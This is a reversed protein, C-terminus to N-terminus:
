CPMRNGVGKRYHVKARFRNLLPHYSHYTSSSFSVARLVVLDKTSLLWTVKQLFLIWAEGMQSPVSQCVQRQSCRNSKRALIIKSNWLVCSRCTSSALHPSLCPSLFSIEGKPSLIHLPLTLTAQKKGTQFDMGPKGKHNKGRSPIGLAM